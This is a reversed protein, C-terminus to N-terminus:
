RVCGNAPTPPCMPLIISAIIKRMLKITHIRNVIISIVFETHEIKIRIVIPSNYWFSDSREAECEIEGM